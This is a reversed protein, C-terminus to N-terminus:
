KIYVLYLSNIWIKSNYFISPFEKKKLPYLFYYTISKFLYTYTRKTGTNNLKLEKIAMYRALCQHRSFTAYNRKFFMQDKHQRVLVLVQNVIGVKANKSLHKIIMLFEQSNRLKNYYPKPDLIKRDWLGDNNCFRIKGIVFNELFNPQTPFSDHWYNGVVIENTKENQQFFKSRCFVVDHKGNVISKVQVELCDPELLDDSDLWKIYTGTSMEFGYNRADNGGSLRDQPRKYFKIREDELFPKIVEETDDTSGDDVIITEWDKFSQVKISSLTDAILHARNFTPIVISVIPTM